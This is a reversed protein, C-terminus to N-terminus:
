ISNKWKELFKSERLAVSLRWKSSNDPEFLIDPNQFYEALWVDFHMLRPSDPFSMASSHFLHGLKKRAHDLLDVSLYLTLIAEFIDELNTRLPRSRTIPSPTDLDWFCFNFCFSFCSALFCFLVELPFLCFCDRARSTLPKCNDDPVSTICSQIENKFHLILITERQKRERLDKLFVTNIYPCFTNCLQTVFWLSKCFFSTENPM